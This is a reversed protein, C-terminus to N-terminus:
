DSFAAAAVLWNILRSDVEEGTLRLPPARYEKWAQLAQRSAESCLPM